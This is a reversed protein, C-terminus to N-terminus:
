LNIMQRSISFYKTKSETLADNLKRKFKFIVHFIVPYLCSKATSYNFLYMCIFLYIRHKLPRHRESSLSFIRFLRWLYIHTSLLCWIYRPIAEFMSVIWNEYLLCAKPWFIHRSRKPHTVSALWIDIETVRLLLLGFIRGDMMKNTQLKLFHGWSGRINLIYFLMKCNETNIANLMLNLLIAPYHWCLLPCQIEKTIIQSPSNHTVATEELIYWM